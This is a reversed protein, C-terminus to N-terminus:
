STGTFLRCQGIKRLRGASAAPDLLYARAQTVKAAEALTLPMRCLQIDYITRDICQGFDTGLGQEELTAIEVPRVNTGGESSQSCRLCASISFRSKEVSIVVAV